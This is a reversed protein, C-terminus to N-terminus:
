DCRWVAGGGMPPMLSVIDGETLRDSLKLLQHSRHPMVSRYLDDDTTVTAASQFSNGLNIRTLLDKVCAGQSLEVTLRRGGAARDYPPYVILHVRMKRVSVGAVLEVVCRFVPRWLRLTAAVVILM